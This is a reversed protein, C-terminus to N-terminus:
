MYHQTKGLCFTIGQRTVSATKNGPFQIVAGTKRGVFLKDLRLLSSALTQGPGLVDLCNKYLRLRLAKPLGDLLTRSLSEASEPLLSRFLETDLAALERMQAAQELFAPNEELIQRLLSHRVRNRFFRPDSNSPDDLFDQGVVILFAPLEARPVGLLPRLLAREPDHEAMGGLAPWGAGRILRMLIDEALDNLQHGLLTLCAGTRARMEAYFAYRAARGLEELGTAPKKHLGGVEVRRSHFPVGLGACVRACYETEAASEPRLGHDLHVAHLCLRLSPVLLDLIRLLATSDAGGSFAINLVPPASSVLHPRLADRVKLCLRAQAPPLDQLRAQESTQRCYAKM